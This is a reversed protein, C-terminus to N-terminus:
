AAEADRGTLPALWHDFDRGVLGALKELDQKYYDALHEHAERSLPPYTVPRAFVGRLAEFWKAGRFPAVSDKFPRLVNRMGLPLIPTQSDNETKALMDDEVFPEVGIFTSIRELVTAPHGSVDEFSLVLINEAPFRDYFRALHEGYLGSELFRRGFETKGSFYAEPAETITGRRYLMCYDSYARDIPNRLQAILKADPVDKAMREAAPASALYDASKEGLMAEKPADDFFSAYWDEGRAYETSFYHPEPGPVFLKPNKDLNLSTWTTAAKVAGIIVFEPLRREQM